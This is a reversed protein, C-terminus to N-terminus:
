ALLYKKSNDCLPDFFSKELSILLFIKDLCSIICKFIKYSSALTIFNHFGKHLLKSFKNLFFYKHPFPTSTNQSIKEEKINKKQPHLSGYTYQIM